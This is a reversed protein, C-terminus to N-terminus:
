GSTVAADKPCVPGDGRLAGCRACLGPMRCVGRGSGSGTILPISSSARPKRPESNHRDREMEEKAHTFISLRLRESGVRDGGDFGEDPLLLLARGRAGGCWTAGGAVDCLVSAITVHVACPPAQGRLPSVAPLLTDWPMDDAGTAGAMTATSGAAPRSLARLLETTTAGENARSDGGPKAWCSICRKPEGPNCIGPPKYTRRARM